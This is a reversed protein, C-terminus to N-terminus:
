NRFVSGIMDEIFKSWTCIHILSLYKGNQLKQEDISKNNQPEFPLSFETWQDTEVAADAKIQALYVLKNSTKANTGDLMFSNDDAEYMIAYIDFRDKVGSQPQNNETYVPGAKYRDRICM